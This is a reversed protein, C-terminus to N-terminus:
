CRNYHHLCYTDTAGFFMALGFSVAAMAVTLWFADLGFITLMVTLGTIALGILLGIAGAVGIGGTAAFFFALALSSIALAINMLKSRIGLVGFFVAAAGFLISYLLGIAGVLDAATLQNVAASHLQTVTRLDTLGPTRLVYTAWLPVSQAPLGRMSRAAAARRLQKSSPRAGEKAAAEGRLGPARSRLGRRNSKPPGSDRMFAHEAASSCLSAIGTGSKDPTHASLVALDVDPGLSMGRTSRALVPRVMWSSLGATHGPVASARNRCRKHSAGVVIPGNAENLLDSSSEHARSAGPSWHFIKPM